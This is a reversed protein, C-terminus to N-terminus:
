HTDAQSEACALLDSAYSDHGAPSAPLPLARYIAEYADVMREHDYHALVRDRAAAGLSAREDPRAALVELAGAFAAADDNPVLRGANGHDLLDPNGGVATAVVAVGTAMAELISMSTGETFSSLAFVDFDRYLDPLDDAMGFFGVHPAIALESVRRVLDARLEGDGILALFTEPRRAHLRAFAEILMLQNKVPAFRAVHGIIVRTDVLGFRRRLVGSAGPRFRSTDIGNPLLCLRDHAVRGHAAYHVLLPRSVAVVAHTSRAARRLLVRGLLSEREHRGHVTHVVRPVGAMAAARAIKLWAGSHSHVVHPDRERFARALARPFLNTRLGPAPVLDVRVGETRLSEGLAGVEETCTIGVAHGRALLARTLRAVVTEMGAPPMSPLAMEIRLSM